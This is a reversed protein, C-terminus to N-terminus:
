HQIVLHDIMVSGSKLHTILYYTGPVLHETQIYQGPNLIGQTTHHKRGLADWLEIRDVQETDLQDPYILHIQDHAPNPYAEVPQLQEPIFTHTNLAVKELPYPDEDVIALEDDEPAVHTKATQAAQSLDPRTQPGAGSRDISTSGNGTVFGGKGAGSTLAIITPYVGVTLTMQGSGFTPLSTTTGTTSTGDLIVASIPEYSTTWSVVTTATDSAEVPRWAVLHTPNGAADGYLYMWAHEDERLTDLFYANGLIDVLAQMSYFSKKKIYNVEKGGTLGSRTFLTTGWLNSHYFYAAKDVGMRQLMMLGRTVYATAADETVCENHLCFQTAGDSDWGWETAHIEKSPMNQDRFRVASITSRMGSGVHEPHVAIRRGDLGKYHSYPHINIGDIYTSESPTIRVGMYNKYSRGENLPEYSQLACPLVFLAPDADKLGKSMGRLITRYVTSDYSWPENGVEVIGVKGNGYTPGFHRGFAYGYKYASTYPSNWATDEFAVFQLAAQVPLGGDIWAQYERDWDLWYQAPTGSTAMDGFSINDDPDSIDWDMKHYDRAFSAVPTYMEPGEGPQLGDTYRNYGWGWFANIGLMTRIDYASQQPAPMPGYPKSEDCATIEWIYAKSYDALSLEQELKIYRVYYTAGLQTSQSTLQSPALTGVQTWNVQDNSIYLRTATAQTAYHRTIIENIPEEQGLDMIAYEVPNQILAAVENIQFRDASYVGIAAPALGGTLPWYQWDYTNPAISGLLSSDGNAEYRYIFLSDTQSRFRGYFRIMPDGPTFHIKMWAADGIKEVKSMGYLNGDTILVTDLTAASASAQGTKDTGLTIPIGSYTFSVASETLCLNLDTRTLFGAPLTPGSTWQTGTNGDNLRSATASNSSTTLVVTSGQSVPPYLGASADWQAMSLTTLSLLFITWVYIRLTSKKMSPYIITKIM